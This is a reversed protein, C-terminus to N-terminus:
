PHEARGDAATRGNADSCLNSRDSRGDFSIRRSLDLLYLVITEDYPSSWATRMNTRSGATSQLTFRHFHLSQDYHESGEAPYQMTSRSFATRALHCEDKPKM